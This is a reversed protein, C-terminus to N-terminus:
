QGKALTEPKLQDMDVKREHLAVGPIHDENRKKAGPDQHQLQRHARGLQSGATSHETVHKSM